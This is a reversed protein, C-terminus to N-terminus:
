DEEAAAEIYAREVKLRKRKHYTKIESSPLNAAPEWTPEWSTLFVVRGDIRQDDLITRMQYTPLSRLDVGSPLVWEQEGADDGKVAAEILCAKTIRAQPMADLLRKIADGTSSTDDRQILGWNRLYRAAAKDLCGWGRQHLHEQCWELFAFFANPPAQDASAM